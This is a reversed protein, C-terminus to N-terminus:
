PCRGPRRAHLGPQLMGEVVAAVGVREGAPPQRVLGDLAPPSGAPPTRVRQSAVGRVAALHVPAGTWRVARGGVLGPATTWTRASWPLVREATETVPVDQTAWRATQRGNDM